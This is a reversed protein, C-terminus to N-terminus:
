LDFVDGAILIDDLCRTIVLPFLVDDDLVHRVWLNHEWEADLAEVNLIHLVRIYVNSTHATCTEHVFSRVTFEMQLRMLDSNM